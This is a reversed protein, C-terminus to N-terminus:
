KFFLFRDKELFHIIGFILFMIKWRNDYITDNLNYLRELLINSMINYIYYTM